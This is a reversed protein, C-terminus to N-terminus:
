ENVYTSVMIYKSGSLYVYNGNIWGSVPVGDSLYVSGVPKGNKYVTLNQNPYATVYVYNSGAWFSVYANVYTSNTYYEGSSDKLSVWGSVYGSAYSNQSPVYINGSLSLYGSLRLYKSEGSNISNNSSLLFVLMTSIIAVIKKM